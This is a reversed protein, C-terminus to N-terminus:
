KITYTSLLNDNIQFEASTQFGNHLFNTINTDLKTGIKLKKSSRFMYFKDIYNQEFFYSLVKNGGEVLGTKIKNRLLFDNFSGEENEVYFLFNNYKNKFTQLDETNNGWMVIPIPNTFQEDLRVNLRPQDIMLTNKGIIISDVTARLYHSIERSEKNSIFKQNENYIYNDGSTAIKGILYPKNNKNKYGPNLFENIGKEIQVNINNERLLELGKGNTREDKDLDGIVVSRIGTELVTSACSPSTDDHFCPELTVYLTDEPSVDSNKFLSFEAHDSLKNQHAAVKKINNMEDVLVAGVRPNPSPNFRLATKIAEVMYKSFNLYELSNLM